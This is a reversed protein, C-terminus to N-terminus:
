NKSDSKAELIATLWAFNTETSGIYMGLQFGTFAFALTTAGWMLDDQNECVFNKVREKVNIKTEAM